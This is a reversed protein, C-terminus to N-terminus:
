DFNLDREPLDRPRIDAMIEEISRGDDPWTGRLALIADRRAEIEEISLRDAILRSVWASKSVKDREAASALAQATKKDLYLTIQAM